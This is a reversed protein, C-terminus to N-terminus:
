HRWDDRWIAHRVRPVHRHHGLGTERSFIGQRRIVFKYHVDKDISLGFGICAAWTSRNVCELPVARQVDWAGLEPADGCVFVDEGPETSVGHVQLDIITAADPRRAIVSYVGISKAGVRIPARGGTVTLPPGGLSCEYIGDALEIASVDLEAAADSRNAAVLCTSGEFKRTLVWRDADIWKTRMGGKQVAPSAKRLACLLAIDRGFATTEFSTMMPRNFPDNGGGTDDHLLQEGGYYLCPVGRSVLTLLVAVRFLAADNSISLFRPLDHNDVFTVLETADRFLHDRDIVDTVEAFGRASRNALASVVANRWGFDLMSMGSKAVFEISAPDWCGGNYWEGFIFTKPRHLIMDGTFEQWFWLPMHKVTDVRFADVGRDLWAKMANKIYVRYGYTEENFDALGALDRTQIQSLDNWDEVGGTHRYWSGQDQDFRAILKGDDYLEGRGGGIQPNSHNCVIDLVLKMGRAHLADVLEDFVTRQRSFIRVDAPDDVLHEDIRRFDKAWYGHYAAMRTGGMDLVEDIQDFVPTIWIATVGLSAIYDIKDLIGRLDGGWYKYWDTHSPDHDANKGLDNEPNGDFFRDTVIFYITDDRFDPM